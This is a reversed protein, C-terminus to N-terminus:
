ENSLSFNHFSKSHFFWCPWVTYSTLLCVSWKVVCIYKQRHAIPKKNSNSNKRCFICQRDAPSITVSLFGCVCSTLPTLYRWLNKLFFIIYCIQMDVWSVFKWWKYKRKMKESFFINMKKHFKVVMKLRSWM